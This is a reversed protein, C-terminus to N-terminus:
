RKYDYKSFVPKVIVARSNVVFLAVTAADPLKIIVSKVAADTSAVPVVPVLLIVESASAVWVTTPPAPLLM